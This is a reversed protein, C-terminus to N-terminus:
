VLLKVQKSSVIVMKEGSCSFLLYERLGKSRGFFYFVFESIIHIGGSGEEKCFSYFPRSIYILVVVWDWVGGLFIYDDIDGFCLSGLERSTHYWCFFCMPTVPDTKIILLIWPGGFVVLWYRL